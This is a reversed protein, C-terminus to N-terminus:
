SIYVMVKPLPTSGPYPFPSNRVWYFVPILHSDMEIQGRGSFIDVREKDKNAAEEGKEWIFKSQRRQKKM